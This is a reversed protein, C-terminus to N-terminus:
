EKKEEQKKHKAVLKEGELRLMIKPDEYVNVIAKVFSSGYSTYIHRIVILDESVKLAKSIEKVLELRSPTKGESAVTVTIRRRSLLPTDREKQIEIQM